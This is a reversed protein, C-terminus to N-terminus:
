WGQIEKVIQKATKVGVGPIQLWESEDARALEIPKRFKREAMESLEVGVGPLDNAWKRVLSPRFNLTPISIKQIERMSRHSNYSKNWFHFWEVVDYATQEPNRPYTILVGTSAVGILYRYLTSYMTRSSRSKCYGWTTGNNFGEMLYGQEHHRWHGEVMLVCIDYMNKMDIRQRNYRADEICNLMDHLSKREVGVSIPGNPGNGEFCFDASPLHQREAKVGLKLILPLLEISGKALDVYIVAEGM